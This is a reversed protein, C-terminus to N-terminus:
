CSSVCARRSVPQPSLWTGMERVAFDSQCYGWHYLYLSERQPARVRIVREDEPMCADKPKFPDDGLPAIAEVAGPTVAIPDFELIPRM